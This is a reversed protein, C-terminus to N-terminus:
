FLTKQQKAKKLEDLKELQSNIREESFEYNILINKIKEKDVKPFEIIVDKVKPNDIEQYIEQWYFNMEYKKYKDKGIADFIKEKTKFERVLQLAKKPGIGKVGGPNYDTGTLIGLCILQEQNIELEKLVENLEIMQPFIEKYGSITKRKRSMSLNQILLPAKFMLCDYDQSAVAYGKNKKVLYSAEAEGESPAQIVAVGMAILLEKSERIKQEDLHVESKAYKGMSEVDEEAVAKEYKERALRKAELRKERTAGKLEPAEGDFVYVLKVGETILKLNRYFLGSLHSTINGRSDKLPTGDPQRITTLFQYIANFADVIIIKDKLDSFQIEKKTIIEGIQLGM